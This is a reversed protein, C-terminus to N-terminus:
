HLHVTCFLIVVLYFKSFSFDPAIIVCRLLFFFIFIFKLIYYFTFLVGLETTTEITTGDPESEGTTFEGTYPEMTTQITTIDLPTGEGTVAEENESISQIPFSNRELVVSRLVKSSFM